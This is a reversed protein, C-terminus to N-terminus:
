ARPDKKNDRDSLKPAKEFAKEGLLLSTIGYFLGYLCGICFVYSINTALFEKGAIILWLIFQIGGAGITCLLIYILYHTEGPQVLVRSLLWAFPLMTILSVIWTSLLMPLLTSPYAQGLIVTVVMIVSSGLLSSIVVSSFIRLGSM